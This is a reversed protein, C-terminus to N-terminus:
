SKSVIYSTDGNLSVAQYQVGNYEYFTDSGSTTETASDPIYPVTAGVPAQTVVYKGDQEVYFDGQYYSYQVNNATVATYGDPLSSIQAGQPPPIAKYGDSTKEYYVGQDYYVNGSSQAQGQSNVVSVVVATTAITAVFFGVPHWVWITPARYAWPNRYVGARYGTHLGANYGQHVGVNYGQRRGVSKGAQYAAANGRNVGGRDIGGGRNVGGRDMGGGRNVGGRNAGGGAHAMSGRRQAVVPEPMLLATTTLLFLTVMFTRRAWIRCNSTM